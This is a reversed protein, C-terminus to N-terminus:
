LALENCVSVDYGIKRLEAQVKQQTVRKPDALVSIRQDEASVNVVDVGPIRTLMRSIREECSACHITQGGTVTFELNMAM